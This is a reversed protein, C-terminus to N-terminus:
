GKQEARESVMYPECIEWAEDIYIKADDVMFAARSLAEALQGRGRGGDSESDKQLKKALADLYKSLADYRLDGLAEALEQPSVDIGMSDRGDDKVIRLTSAHVKRSKAM